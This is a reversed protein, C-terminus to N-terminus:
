RKRKKAELLRKMRAEKEEQSVVPIRKKKDSAASMPPQPQDPKMEPVPDQKIWRKNEQRTIINNKANALQGISPKETEVKQRVTNNFLAILPYFPKFGLRRILIELVLLLFAALLLQESIPMKRKPQEMLPRFAEKPSALQKGGTIDALEKLLGNNTGKLLYEDSYPVSFGTQFLREQGDGSTQKARLFYMGPENPFIVEYEGPATPKVSADIVTGTQSVVSVELPLFQGDTGKLNIVTNGSEKNVTYRFPESDYQPLSKSVMQNIFQPWEPWQAWDGSWKGTMDSTFALTTGLGYQWEALIPDEKESILPVLARNKATVAIYANMKPIGNKFFATWEPYPQVIPYFPNDEIYTRTTMVTERSLISPIVSADTVDYFRGSGQQALDELLRRDADTGLAVTSLTINNQKGEEILAEYDGGAASQGDTLLIIHKRQLKLDQLEQFAKELAPYINTGGGVSVSRIQEIVKKKDELPATEVIEWPRDDFAIFGLTDKERLLDVSRAAAEKALTLKNGSMSGSRDIVIVLGLSPLEKKGKIDMDVPLLKEIPTKFYGGLGFSDEGGLMLFGTGFEQVAKEILNMQLESVRTGSVNNFIISQYQLMGALTTPLKEPILEDIVYGASQLIETLSDDQKGQIVLIRPTGKVTTVAYLSNNEIFADQKDTVLEAKFVAMGPERIPYAFSYQNQGEKVAIQEQLIDQNNLSIRLQAMKETNSIVGVTINVQEGVYLSPPVDLKTIAADERFSQNFKVYDLEFKQNKLLKAADKGTGETENGDTLLVIRGGQESSLLSSAFGIGEELNTEANNIKGTLEAISRKKISFSQDVVAGDAFSVVSYTQEGKKAEVSKDLWDLIQAQKDEFSASRDVLFVIPEAKIPLLIQPVALAAILLFFIVLRLSLITVKETTRSKYIQKAFRYILLSAPVLLLLLFPYKLELGM